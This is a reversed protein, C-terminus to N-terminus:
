ESRGSGSIVRADRRVRARSSRASTRGRARAGHVCKRADERTEPASRSALAVRAGRITIPVRDAAVVIVSPARAVIVSPARAVVVSPARDLARDVRATIPLRDRTARAVLPVARASGRRHVGLAAAAVLSVLVVRSFRPVVVRGRAALSSGVVFLSLTVVACLPSTVLSAFCFRSTAM